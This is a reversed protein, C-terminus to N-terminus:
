KKFLFLFTTLSSKAFIEFNSKNWNDDDDDDAAAAAAAAASLRLLVQLVKSCIKARFKMKRHSEM